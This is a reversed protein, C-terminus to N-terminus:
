KPWKDLPCEAVEIKAKLDMFGGCEKCFRNNEFRDCGRCIEMRKNYVEEDAVKFGSNAFDGMTIALNRAKEFFSPSTQGCCGREQPPLIKSALIDQNIIPEPDSVERKIKEVPTAKQSTSRVDTFIDTYGCECTFSGNQVDYTTGCKCKFKM